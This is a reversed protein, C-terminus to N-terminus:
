MNKIIAQELEYESHENALELFDFTYHDKVALYAQNKITQPLAADFNTQNL